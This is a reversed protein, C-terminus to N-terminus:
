ETQRKRGKMDYEVEAKKEQEKKNMLKNYCNGTENVVQM